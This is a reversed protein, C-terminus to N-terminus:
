SAIFSCDLRLKRYRKAPGRGRSRLRSREKRSDYSQYLATTVRELVAQLKM